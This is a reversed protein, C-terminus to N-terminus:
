AIRPSIREVLTVDKSTNREKGSSWIISIEPVVDRQGFMLSNPTLIPIRVDEQIYSFPRNKLVMEIDLVVEQFEKWYILQGIGDTSSVAGGRRM